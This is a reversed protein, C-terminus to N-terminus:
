TLFGADPGPGHQASVRLGDPYPRASVDLVTAYYVRVWPVRRYYALLAHDTVLRDHVPALDPVPAQEADVGSDEVPGLYALARDHGGAGDHGLASLEGSPAEDHTNRGLLRAVYRLLLCLVYCAAHLGVDLPGGLVPLRQLASRLLYLRSTKESKGKTNRDESESVGDM